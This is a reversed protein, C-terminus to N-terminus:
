LLGHRGCSSHRIDSAMMNQFLCKAMCQARTSRWHEADFGTIHSRGRQKISTRFISVQEWNSAAYCPGNCDRQKVCEECANNWNRNNQYITLYIGVYYSLPVSRSSYYYLVAAWHSRPCFLHTPIWSVWPGFFSLRWKRSSEVTIQSKLTRAGPFYM